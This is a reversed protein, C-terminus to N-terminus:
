SYSVTYQLVPLVTGNLRQIIRKETEMVELRKEEVVERAILGPNSAIMEAVRLQVVFENYYKALQEYTLTINKCEEKTDQGTM